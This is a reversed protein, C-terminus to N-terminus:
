DGITFNSILLQKLPVRHTGRSVKQSALSSTITRIQFDRYLARLPESEDYTMLWKGKVIGLLKALDAHDQDSFGYYGESVTNM